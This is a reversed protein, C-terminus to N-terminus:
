LYFPVGIGPTRTNAYTARALHLTMQEGDRGSWVASAPDGGAMDAHSEDRLKRYWDIGVPQGSPYTLRGYLELVMPQGTAEDLPAEVVEHLLGYM